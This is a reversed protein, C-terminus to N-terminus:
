ITQMFLHAGGVSVQFRLLILIRQSNNNTFFIYSRDPKDVDEYYVIAKGNISYGNDANTDKLVIPQAYSYKSHIIFNSSTTEFYDDYDYSDDKTPAPNKGLGGIYKRSFEKPILGNYTEETPIEETPEQKPKCCISFLLIFLSIIFIKFFNNILFAIKASSKVQSSKVQSSKVLM